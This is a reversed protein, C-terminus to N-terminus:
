ATWVHSPLMGPTDLVESLPDNSRTPWAVLNALEGVAIRGSPNLRTLARGRLAHAADTTAMKWLEIATVDPSQRRVLRLDDMLNLDGSSAVSDTGVCVTAGVAKLKRWPHPPHGFYGHTRPCWVVRVDASKLLTLHDDRVYNMHALLTGSTIVGLNWLRAIAGGRWRVGPGPDFGLQRYMDGFPGAHQDLFRDEDPTEALHTTVFGGITEAALVARKYDAPEVTYPAHPSVGVKMRSGASKADLANTLLEAFRPRREGIGLCEGYSISRIPADRLIPRVVDVNQSIDGVFTVGFKLCQDIGELVAAARKQKFTAVDPERAAAMTTLLWDQFNAPNPPRPVNTLELHTHANILGPTLLGPIDYNIRSPKLDCYPGVATIKGDSVTVCGDEIVGAEGM